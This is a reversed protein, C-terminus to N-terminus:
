FAVGVRFGATFAFPTHDNWGIFGHHYNSLNSNGAAFGLGSYLDFVFWKKVWDYGLVGMLAARNVKLRGQSSHTYYYSSYCLEPKVYFGCLQNNANKRNPMIFKYAVRWATGRPDSDKLKDFGLGIVGFTLEVSQYDRVLREYTVKSTGSALSLLAVKIENKRMKLQDTQATASASLFLLGFIINRCLKRM